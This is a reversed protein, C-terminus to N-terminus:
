VRERLDCASIAAFAFPYRATNKSVREDESGRRFPISRHVRVWGGVTSEVKWARRCITTEENRTRSKSSDFPKCLRM